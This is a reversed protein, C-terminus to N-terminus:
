SFGFRWVRRGCALGVARAVQDVAVAQSQAFAEHHGAPDVRVDLGVEGHFRVFDSDFVLFTFHHPM